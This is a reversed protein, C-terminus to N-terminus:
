PRRFQVGLVHVGLFTKTCESLALILAFFTECSRCHVHGMDSMFM